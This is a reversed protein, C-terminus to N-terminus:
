PDSSSLPVPPGSRAETRPADHSDHKLVAPIEAPVVPLGAPAGLIVHVRRNGAGRANGQTGPRSPLAARVAGETVSTASAMAADPDFRRYLEMVAVVYDRTEAYPPVQYAHRAVAGEGANYAALVLELRAPYRAQLDRLFRAGTAVNISPDSLKDAVSRKKDARVGYREGTEPMVQMLGIAGKPSVADPDFGSEAAIVAKLLAPDVDFRDAARMIVPSLRKLAPHHSLADYLKARESGGAPAAGLAARGRLDLSGGSRVFLRYRSDLPRTALHATGNEDVFGYLDAHAAPSAGVLAM